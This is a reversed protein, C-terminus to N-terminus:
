PISDSKSRSGDQSIGLERLSDTLGRRLWKDIEDQTAVAIVGLMGIANAGAEKNIAGKRRPILIMWSNTLIMNHPCAAGAPATDANEALGLGVETSRSLLTEYISTLGAPTFQDATFRNYFWRFPVNPEKIDENDLFSAFSTEPKPMVQMHKHLLSCGGDQGCNYFLVHDEGLTNLVTWAAKFDSEHLPEFQRKYGDRTLVM